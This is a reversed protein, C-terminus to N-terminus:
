ETKIFPRIEAFRKESIGRIQMLQEPRRFPGNEERFAIIAEATKVGIHPITQLEASTATNINIASSAPIKDAVSTQYVQRTSCGCFAILALLVAIIQTRRSVM